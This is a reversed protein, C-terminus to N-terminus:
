ESNKMMNRVSWGYWLLAIFFIVMMVIATTDPQVTYLWISAGFGLAIFVLSLIMFLKKLKEM